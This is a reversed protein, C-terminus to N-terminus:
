RAREAQTAPRRASYRRSAYLPGHHGHPRPRRDCRANRSRRDSRRRDGRHSRRPARSGGHLAHDFVTKGLSRLGSILEWAARRASPDFGTTPEDLFILEPDGILALAVDLRRRQGGSLEGVSTDAKDEIGVLAIMEEVELPTSYYGAYLRLCERVTVGVAPQSEQLVVGLRDRWERGGRAPISVSCGYRAPTAIAFDKSSRSLRRRVQATRGELGFVEGAAIELDIGRVAEVGDYSKTLGQVTIAPTSMSPVGPSSLATVSRAGPTMVTGSTSEAELRAELATWWDLAWRAQAVGFELVEVPFRVEGAARSAQAFPLKPELADLRQELLRRQAGVLGLVQSPEMVDAFLKLLGEHRVELIQPPIALWTALASRGADTLTFVRRQRGGEPSAEGEIFGGAEM